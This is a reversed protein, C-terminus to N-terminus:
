VLRDPQKPTRRGALPWIPDTKIVVYPVIVFCKQESQKDVRYLRHKIEPYFIFDFSLFTWNTVLSFTIICQHQKFWMVTADPQSDRWQASSILRDLNNWNLSASSFPFLSDILTVNTAHLCPFGSFYFIRFLSYCSEFGEWQWDTEM